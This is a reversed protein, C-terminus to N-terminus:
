LCKLSIIHRAHIITIYCMLRNYLIFIFPFYPLKVWTLIKGLEDYDLRILFNFCYRFFGLERLTLFKQFPFGTIIILQLTKDRLQLLVSFQDGEQSWRSPCSPKVFFFIVCRDQVKHLLCSAQLFSSQNHQSQLSLPIHGFNPPSDQTATSIVSSSHWKKRRPDERGGDMIIWEGSASSMMLDQWDSMQKM